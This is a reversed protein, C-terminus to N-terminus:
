NDFVPPVKLFGGEREPFMETGAGAYKNPREEDERFINKLSTGGTIPKVESTDLQQLEEFHGLIEQLDKFLREEERANLEIRSLEALHKLLKKNILSPM